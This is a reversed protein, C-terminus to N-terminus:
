RILQVRLGALRLDAWAADATYVPVHLRRGLGICARDALSLHRPLESRLEAAELADMREFRRVPLGLEEAARRADAPPVGRDVMKAVVEALNIASIVARALLREVQKGGPEDWLLALVASADLV